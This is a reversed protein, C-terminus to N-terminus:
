WACRGYHKKWYNLIFIFVSAKLSLCSTALACKLWFFFFERFKLLWLIVFHKRSFNGSHIVLFLTKFKVLSASWTEEVRREPFYNVFDIIKLKDHQVSHHLRATIHSCLDTIPQWRHLVTSISASYYKLTIRHPTITKIVVIDATVYKFMSYYKAHYNQVQSSQSAVYTSLWKDYIANPGINASYFIFGFVKFVTSLNRIVRHVQLNTFFPWCQWM